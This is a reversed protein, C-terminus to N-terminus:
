WERHVRNYRIGKESKSLSHCPAEPDLHALNSSESLYHKSVTGSCSFWSGREWILHKTSQLVESYRLWEYDDANLKPSGRMRYVVFLISFCILEKLSYVVLAVNFTRLFESFIELLLLNIYSFKWIRYFQHRLGLLINPFVIIFFHSILFRANRRV